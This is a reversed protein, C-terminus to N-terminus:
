QVIMPLNGYHDIIMMKLVVLSIFSTMVKVNLNALFLRVKNIFHIMISLRAYDDYYLIVRLWLIM